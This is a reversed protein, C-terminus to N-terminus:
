PAHEGATWGGTPANQYRPAAWGSESRTGLDHSKPASLYPGLLKYGEPLGEHTLFANGGLWRAIREADLQALRREADEPHSALCTEEDDMVGNGAVAGALSLVAWGVVMMSPPRQGDPVKNEITDVIRDLTTAIVRQDSSSAREVIAIPTHLPYAAGKRGESSAGTLTEVVARLRAVGMLILLTRGREYGPLSVRRGGRGVGTCLVLSDAAGRQTVPINVLLPGALASSIGPIVACEIGAERFAVLEEGGRGYVYPDGQKLRVVTKGQQTADKALAILESQAGEANGPFKKAIVLPTSEPILALVSTPVLKDSLILDTEPSTLIHHAAVTLLGPHGPGSGLLFVRGKETGAGLRLAHRSRKPPRVDAEPTGRAPSDSANHLQEALLGHMEDTTLRALRELPWYESIQAVWRMRRHQASDRKEPKYGLTDLRPDDELEGNTGDEQKAIERMEGIREVADGVNAPLAAVLTRRIRGALRCGRGNTTVSIQLPSPVQAGDSTCPFRHTAPFSFDCLDPQDTVNIPLRRKRCLTALLACRALRRGTDTGEPALTDTVCVAFLSADVDVEDFLANWANACAEEGGTGEPFLADHAIVHFAEKRVAAQLETHSEEYTGSWVVIPVMGAAHAAQVRIAALKNAGVVLLARGEPKHAVLLSATM